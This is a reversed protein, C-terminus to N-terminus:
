YEGLEIISNEQIFNRPIKYKTKRESKNVSNFDSIIDVSGTIVIYRYTFKVSEIHNFVITQKYNVFGGATLGSDFVREVYLKEDCIWQRQRESQKKIRIYFCFTLPILVIETCIILGYLIRLSYFKFLMLAIAILLLTIQVILLKIHFSGYHQKFAKEDYKM